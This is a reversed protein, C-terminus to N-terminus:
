LNLKKVAIIADNPVFPMPITNEPRPPINFQSNTLLDNSIEFVQLELKEDKPFRIEIVSSDHNSIYHTLLRDGRRKSELFRKSIETGNLRCSLLTIKSGTIELRNIPRQSVVSFTVMRDADQVTDNLVNIIPAPINKLPAVAIYTFGNGYKSSFRSVEPKTNKEKEIFQQVWNDPSKNYTAWTAKGSDADFLYVLSTPHPRDFTSKSKLHALTLFIMAALVFFIGINKKKEYGGFVPALLGFILVTFATAAVMMDLGLAVPFQKIFPALLLLAPMSLVTYLLLPAKTKKILFFVALLSFFAPIIFYAAGQLYVSLGACILLWFFLPAIALNATSLSRFRSYCLFCFGLSLLAFATIYLYGNYTFGHQIDGYQPYIKLLLPWSCYGTVASLLLSGLFPIFGKTIQAISLSHNRVGVTLLTIFILFALGLMPWIWSFPYYIMGILPFNFYIYDKKSKLKSLDENGFFKIMSMLYDGQHELTNRDLREYNDRVTHYDFHDDIFAFSIGDIDAQERLITNDMDNPLLKYISYALSNCLPYPTKAQAFKKILTSNGGNTHLLMYSPGGSGRAEFNVALGVEKSWPHSDVFLQAGNLGLEEADTILIIIDNKTQQKATTLARIGEIITAVGSADDSAGLSSHPSSDYHSMLLLSKGSPDTGKIRALINWVKSFNGWAGATFGEQVQPQLGLKKFESLIYERAAAHAPSGTFHPQVSLAKVHVLARETSFKEPAADLKTISHPMLSYFSWFVSIVVLLFSLATRLM